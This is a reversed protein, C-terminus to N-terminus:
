ALEGKVHFSMADFRHDRGSSHIPDYMLNLAARYVDGTDLGLAESMIVFACAIGLLQAEPDRSELSSYVRVCDAAVKAKDANVLRDRDVLLKGRNNVPLM